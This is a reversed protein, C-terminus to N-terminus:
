DLLNEFANFLNEPLESNVPKNDPIVEEYEFEDDLEPESIDAAIDGASKTNETQTIASQTAASQTAETPVSDDSISGHEKVPISQIVPTKDTVPRETVVKESRIPTIEEACSIMMGGNGYLYRAFAARLVGKLFISVMGKPISTIYEDMVKYAEEPLWKGKTKDSLSIHVRFGRATFDLPESRVELVREVPVEALHAYLAGLVMKSHKINQSKLLGILDKDVRDSLKITINVM